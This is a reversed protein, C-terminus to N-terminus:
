PILHCSIEQSRCLNPDLRILAKTSTALVVVPGSLLSWKVRWKVSIGQLLTAYKSYSSLIPDLTINKLKDDIIVLFVILRLKQNIMSQLQHNYNIMSAVSLNVSTLIGCKQFDCTM